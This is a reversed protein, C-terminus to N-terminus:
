FVRNDKKKKRRRVQVCVSPCRWFTEEVGLLQSRKGEIKDEECSFLLCTLSSVEKKENKIHTHTNPQTEPSLNEKPRFSISVDKTNKHLHKFLHPIKDFFCVVSVNSFGFLLFTQNPDRVGSMQSEGM